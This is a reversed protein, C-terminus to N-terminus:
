SDARAYILLNGGDDRMVRLDDDLYLVEQATEGQPWAPTELAPLRGFWDAVGGSGRLEAKRPAGLRVRAARSACRAGRARLALAPARDGVLAALSIPAQLSASETVHGGAIEQSIQGVCGPLPLPLSIAGLTAGLSTSYALRWRGDLAGGGLDVAGALAALRHVAGEVRRTDERGAALGRDLTSLLALLERKVPATADAGSPGSSAAGAASGPRGRVLWVGPRPGDVRHRPRRQGQRDRQPAFRAFESAARNLENAVGSAVGTAAGVVSGAIDTVMRGTDAIADATSGAAAAADKTASRDDM